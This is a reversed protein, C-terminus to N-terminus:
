IKGKLGLNQLDAVPVYGAFLAVPVLLGSVTLYTAPDSPKVAYLLETMLRPEVLGRRM